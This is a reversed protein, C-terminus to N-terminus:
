RRETMKELEPFFSFHKAASPWKGKVWLLLRTTPNDKERLVQRLSPVAKTGLARIKLLEPHSWRESLSIASLTDLAPHMVNVVSQRLFVMGGVPLMALLLALWLWRSRFWRNM